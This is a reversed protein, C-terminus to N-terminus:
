RDKENIITVEKKKHTMSYVYDYSKDVHTARGVINYLIDILVIVTPHYSRGSSTIIQGDWNKSLKCANYLLGLIPVVNVADSVEWVKRCFAEETLIERSIFYVEEYKKALVKLHNILELVEALAPDHDESGSYSCMQEKVISEIRMIKKYM